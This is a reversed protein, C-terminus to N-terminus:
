GVQLFVLWVQLFYLRVKLFTLHKKPLAQARGVGDPERLGGAAEGFSDRLSLVRRDEASSEARLEDPVQFLKGLTRRPSIRELM